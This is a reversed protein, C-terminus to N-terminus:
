RAIVLKKTDLVKGNVVLAYIYMGAALQSTNLQVQSKGSSSPLAISTIPKGDLSYVQCVAASSFCKRALLM